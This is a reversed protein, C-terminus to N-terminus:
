GSRQVHTVEQCKKWLLNECVALPLDARRSSHSGATGREGSGSPGQQRTQASRVNTAVRYVESLSLIMRYVSSTLM